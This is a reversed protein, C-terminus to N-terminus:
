YNRKFLNIELNEIEGIHKFECRELEEESNCPFNEILVISFKDPNFTRM